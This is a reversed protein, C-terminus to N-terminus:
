PEYRLAFQGINVLFSKTWRGAADKSYFEYHGQMTGNPTRLPCAARCPPACSPLTNTTPPKVPPCAAAPLLEQRGALWGALWIRLLLCYPLRVPRGKLQMLLAAGCGAGGMWGGDRCRWYAHMRGGSQYTYSEGPALEPQEGVVGPGRM